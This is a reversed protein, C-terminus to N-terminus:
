PSVLSDSVVKWKVVTDLTLVKQVKQMVFNVCDMFM